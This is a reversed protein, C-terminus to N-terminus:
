RRWISAVVKFVLKFFMDLLCKIVLDRIKFAGHLNQIQLFSNKKTAISGVARAFNVFM